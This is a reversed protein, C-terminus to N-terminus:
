KGRFSNRWLLATILLFSIGYNAPQRHAVSILRLWTPLSKRAIASTWLSVGNHLYSKALKNRGVTNLAM